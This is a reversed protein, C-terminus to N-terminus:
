ALQVACVLPQSFEAEGIRSTAEPKRLEETLDWTPSHELQSLVRGLYSITDRFLSYDQLLESAMGAWQAGQGTFVMNVDVKANAVKAPSSFELAPQSEGELSITSVVSYARHSLHERRNCLTYSVDLQNKKNQQQYKQHELVRMKLSAPSAASIAYLVKRPTHLGHGTTDSAGAERNSKLGNFDDSLFKNALSCRLDTHGKKIDLM